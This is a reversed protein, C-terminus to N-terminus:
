YPYPQERARKKAEEEKAKAIAREALLINYIVPGIDHFIKDNVFGSGPCVSIMRAKLREWDVAKCLTPDQDMYIGIVERLGERVSDM